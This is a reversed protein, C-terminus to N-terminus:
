FFTALTLRFTLIKRLNRDLCARSRRRSRQPSGGEGEPDEEGEPATQTSLEARRKPEPPTPPFKPEPNLKNSKERLERAKKKKKSYRIMLTTAKATTGHTSHQYSLFFTCFKRLLQPALACFNSLFTASTDFFLRTLALRRGGKKRQEHKSTGHATGRGVSGGGVVVVVFM